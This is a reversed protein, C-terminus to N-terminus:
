YYLVHIICTYKGAASRTKNKATRRARRDHTGGVNHLARPVVSSWLMWMAVRAAGPLSTDASSAKSHAGGCVCCLACAADAACAALATVCQPV